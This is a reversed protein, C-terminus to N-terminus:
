GDCIREVEEAMAAATPMGAVQLRGSGTWASAVADSMAVVELPARVEGVQGAVLAASRPSFLPLIVPNPGDLAERAAPGLARDRQDYVVVSHTPVGAAALREAVDGRAHRGRLHLLPGGPRERSLHAVLANADAGGFSCEMGAARAAQTTREGVAWARRGRLDHGAVAEVASTSTLILGPVDDLPMDLPCPVIEIIPDIIVPGAFGRTRCIEVFARSRHEPRTLLLVPDTPAM